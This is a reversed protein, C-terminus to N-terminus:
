TRTAPKCLYTRRPATPPSSKRSAKDLQIDTFRAQLSRLEDVDLLADTDEPTLKRLYVDDLVMGDTNEPIGKPDEVRRVVEPSKFHARAYSTMDAGAPGYIATPLELAETPRNFDGTSCIQTVSTGHKRKLIAWTRTSPTFYIKLTTDVLWRM